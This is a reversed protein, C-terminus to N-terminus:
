EKFLRKEVMGCLAHGIVLHAEQIRATRTDPVCIPLDCEEKLRGGFATTLGISKIGMPKALDVARLVNESNGSTSIAILVDGEDGYALLQRNFVDDFFLDNAHATLFTFDTGLVIAKLPFRPFLEFKGTLETTLHFCLAASGGNGCFLIKNGALLAACMMEGAALINGFQTKLVVGINTRSEVFCQRVQLREKIIDEAIAYREPTGIDLFPFTTVVKHYDLRPLTDHEFSFDDEKILEWASTLEIIYAGVSVGVVDHLVSIPKGGQTHEYYFDSLDFDCLTDGNVVLVTDTDAKRLANRIGGATGLPEYEIAYEIDVGFKKGNGFHALIDTYLYGVSLIIKEIGQDVLHQIVFELFPRGIFPAMPKPGDYVDKLRIGKGGALIIADMKQVM